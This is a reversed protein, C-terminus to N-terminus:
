AAAGRTPLRTRTGGERQDLSALGAAVGLLATDCGTGVDLPVVREGTQDGIVDLLEHDKAGGGVAYINSPLGSEVCQRLYTLSARLEAALAEAYRVFFPGCMAAAAENTRRGRAIIWRAIDPAVGRTAVLEDVIRPLSTGGLAREYVPIGDRCAMVAAGHWGLDLVVQLEGSAGLRRLLAALSLSAPVLTDVDLGGAEFGDLLVDADAHPCVAALFRDTPTAKPPQPSPWTM